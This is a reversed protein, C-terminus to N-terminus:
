GWTLLGPTESIAVEGFDNWSRGRDMREGFTSPLKLRVFPGFASITVEGFDKLRSYTLEYRM